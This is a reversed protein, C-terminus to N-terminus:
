AREIECTHEGTKADYNIGCLIINGEFPKLVSAYKKKKIQEIAGGATKNWKLEVVMAPLRTFATPIFVVDAIGKGGPMEEVKVYKALM